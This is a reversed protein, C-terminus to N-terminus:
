RVKGHWVMGYWVMGCWVVDYWVRRLHALGQAGLHRSHPRHNALGQAPEGLLELRGHVQLVQADLLALVHEGVADVADGSVHREVAGHEGADGGVGDDCDQHAGPLPLRWEVQFETVQPNCWPVCLHAVNEGYGM